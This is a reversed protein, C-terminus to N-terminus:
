RYDRYNEVPEAPQTPKREPFEVPHGQREIMKSGSMTRAYQGTWSMAETLAGLV